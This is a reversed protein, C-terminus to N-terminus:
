EYAAAVSGMERGNVELSFKMNAAETTVVLDYYVEYCYGTRDYTPVKKFLRRDVSRLDSTVICNRKTIGITPWKPAAAIDCHLLEDNFTLANDGFGEDLTRYFPFVIRQDRKLDEGKLIYWTM